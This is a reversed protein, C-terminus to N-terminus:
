AQEGHNSPDTIGGACRVAADRAQLYAKRAAAIRDPGRSNIARRLHGWTRYVEVQLSKEVRRWHAPCMLYAPGIPRACVACTNAPGNM